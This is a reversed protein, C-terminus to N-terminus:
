WDGLTLQYGNDPANIEDAYHAEISEQELAAEAIEFAEESAYYRGLEERAVNAPLFDWAGSM